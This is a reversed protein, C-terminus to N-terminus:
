GNSVLAPNVAKWQALDEKARDTYAAKRQKKKVEHLPPFLGFNVNMPQYSDAEADGTIHALLAGLATTRPPNEWSRGTLECATMLGALLGVASSEVYGECGTIQGAFRVHPASKLRLQRDLLTPSNLFTNRHLGGLRAFEANELGPITRFLRVQEAHKLKTQFGVMNWLTGLKNDQRLQVVAYPWRGNPHEPTAWHPNDLGVPKMPGFRLTEEGREAMVEIPMCGDFYPTNAEWQKFETKDGALLGERFALYQERTMPCNIYDRGDGGMALSAEAGKDWRSAMWAVDMNISDRYVIPAIADFFALSDAGTAAGISQALAEATLPGTAVITLGAQPLVDIRERVITLNALAALAAEVEASFVERDVALASGAPVRAKAAAAMVLSDLQRMEHHLLGVANSVDDDSRFSNSCVLEALQATQHAPTMDGAGRMESLRVRLGRRALQWAAESGALGGGIIHVDYQM